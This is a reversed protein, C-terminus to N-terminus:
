DAILKEHVDFQKGPNNFNANKAIHDLCRIKSVLHTGTPIHERDTNVPSV